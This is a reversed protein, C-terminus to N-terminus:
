YLVPSRSSQRRRFTFVDLAVAALGMLLLVTGPLLGPPTYSWRIEHRGAPVAVARFVDFAVTGSNEVGDVFVRWGRAHQQTLVVHGAAPASVRVRADRSTLTVDDIASVSARVPDAASSPPPTNWFTAFPFAGDNIYATVTRVRALPALPLTTDALVYRASLLDIMRPDTLAREFLEAYRVQYLPAASGADHRRRLLNMYGYIWADRDTLVTARTPLRFVRSDAGVTAPWPIRDRNFPETELLPGARLVLDLLIVIPLLADAWRRRPVRDWALVFLAVLALAGYAVLRGPYRLVSGPIAEIIRSAPLYRGAGFVVAFALLTLWGWTARRRVSLAIGILAGIAVPLGVYIMPIFHQGLSADRGAADLQPWAGVRLWDVPPMSQGFIRAARFGEARDTGRLMMLFPLLQIASLAFAIFGAVAVDRLRRRVVVYMVAGIAAFLPQGALFSLAIAVGGAAAPVPAVACWLVFPLWAFTCFNDSVDIMSLTPGSAMIAVAGALAAARSASRAFLLYASAGLILSHLALYLTYARAFPLAIFMWAPPYFVATQPNALWPEGAANYPNWFPMRGARLEEATFLRMPEFYHAHDRFRLVEGTFLPRAFIVVAAAIIILLALLAGRRSEAGTM